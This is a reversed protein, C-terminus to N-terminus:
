QIKFKKIPSHFSVMMSLEPEIQLTKRAFNEISFMRANSEIHVKLGLSKAFSLLEFFDKRISVEGGIFIVQECKENAAERLCEKIEETTRDKYAKRSDEGIICHICNNNCSYGFTINKSKIRKM